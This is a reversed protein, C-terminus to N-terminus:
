ATGRATVAPIGLNRYFMQYSNAQDTAKTFGLTPVKTGAPTIRKAALQTELNDSDGMGKFVGGLTSAATSGLMYKTMDGGLLGTSAPTTATTTPTTIQSLLGPDGTITPTASVGQPLAM